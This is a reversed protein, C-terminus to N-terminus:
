GAIKKWSERAFATLSDVNKSVVEWNVMRPGTGAMSDIVYSGGVTLASGILLGLFFRM